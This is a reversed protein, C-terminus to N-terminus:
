PLIEEAWALTAEALRVKDSLTNMLTHLAVPQIGLQEIEGCWDQDVVDLVLGDLLERYHEAIGRPSVDLGLEAMLKAAPGKIARGGVIPSVAIRVASSTLIREYIGTVALIPDISLFPNSPGFLILTAGELAAAVEPSLQAKDAGVFRVQKVVPQWRERVFYEQFALTGQDTDLWTQVMDNCMPLLPHRVGLCACLHQTVQTLTLGKRLMMTRMLNTGLDLDGLQFWGPGNCRKVMDMARFTDDAVGWGTVPNALGALSYMVTDLDPSIHLGLHEFDDGTNVIITLAEPPLLDALGVALKAGGVGGVLMVVHDRVGRHARM